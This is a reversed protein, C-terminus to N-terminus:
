NAHEPRSAEADDYDILATMAERVL